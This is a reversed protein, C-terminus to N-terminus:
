LGVVLSTTAGFTYEGYAVDASSSGGSDSREASGTLTGDFFAGALVRVSGVVAIALDLELNAYVASVSLEEDGQSASTSVYSLGAFGWVGLRESLPHFYGGRGGVLLLTRTPLESTEAAGSSPAEEREGSRSAYGLFGGVSIGDSVFYDATVRPVSSPRFTETIDSPAGPAILLAVDVGSDTTQDEAGGASVVLREKWITLGMLRSAGLVIRGSRHFSAGDIAAGTGAAGSTEAPEARAAPLEPPPTPAAPAPAPAPAAPSPGPPAPAPVPAPAPLPTPAPAPAAPADPLAQAKKLQAEGDTAEELTRAARIYSSYAKIADNKGASGLQLYADGAKKAYTPDNTSEFARLYADGAAKFSGAAAYQDGLAADSQQAFAAGSGLSVALVLTCWSVLRRNRSGM